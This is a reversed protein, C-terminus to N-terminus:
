DLWSVAVRYGRYQIRSVTDGHFHIRFERRKCKALIKGVKKHEFGSNGHNRSM